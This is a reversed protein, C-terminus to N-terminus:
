GILLYVVLETLVRYIVEYVDRVRTRTTTDLLFLNNV